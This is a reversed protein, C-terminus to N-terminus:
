YKCKRHLTFKLGNIQSVGSKKKTQRAKPKCARDKTQVRLLRDNSMKTVDNRLLWCFSTKKVVIRKSNFHFELYPSTETIPAYKKEAYNKLAINKFDSVSLTRTPLSHMQKPKKEPKPTYQKIQCSTAKQKMANSSTSSILNFKIATNIADQKCQSIVDNIENETPLQHTVTVKNQKSLKPYTFNTSTSHMIDNQLQIKSIRALAEKVTCNTVTSYTSTLSRFQRFTSECPQSSMLHPLFLAERNTKKLNLMIKVLSSANLEIYTYCNASLFNDKM